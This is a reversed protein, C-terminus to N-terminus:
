CHGSYANSSPRWYAARRWPSARRDSKLVMASSPTLLPNGLQDDSPRCITVAVSFLQYDPCRRVASGGGLSMTWCRLMELRRLRCIRSVLYPSRTRSTQRTMLKPVGRLWNNWQKNPCIESSASSCRLPGTQDVALRGIARQFEAGGSSSM